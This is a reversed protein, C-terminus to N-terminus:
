TSWYYAFFNPIQDFSPNKSDERPLVLFEDQVAGNITMKELMSFLICNNM